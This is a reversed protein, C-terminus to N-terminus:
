VPNVDAFIGVDRNNKDNMFERILGSILERIVPSNRCKIILRRRYVGNLKPIKPPLPGLITLKQEPCEAKSKEILRETFASASAIVSDEKESSFGITVLDCFPPYALARRLMIETNYFSIYNQEAALEITTNDPTVTQIVARGHKSGRGARGVVQTILDFTREASRFDDNYLEKDASIVGVLTVDPFDLGKAVMQTGILIDYEGDAFSNLATEHSNRATTTDADMRLVRASPFRSHLEAEIKQTGSGSYRMNEGSCVKCKETYPESYGCYHCMLRNNAAHYTLSISCHPCTMVNKCDPCSVFTNFGRRNVLLISQEGLSLNNEIEGALEDSISFFSDTKHKASVDVTHVQPLVAKGYRETLETYIYQGAKAKAFTEVSPTASAFVTLAKNYAGRFRAVDKANYRPTSESKYTHEQEEDVIILGINELPAFIASRTGVAIVADGNKLRCWEDYREGMSLGSHLIATKKGYRSSFLSFTQPTLSIEPILVIVTKGDELVRDILELYVSTKGSGTIGYLLATNGKGEKCADWLKECARSQMASLVPKVYAEDKRAAEPTRFVRRRSLSVVGKQILAKTVSDGVGTYYSVDKFGVGPNASIYEVVASQKPTLSVDPNEPSFDASIHLEGSTLEGVSSVSEAKEELLGKATMKKLTLRDTIGCKKSILSERVFGKKSGIFSLLMMEEASLKEPIDHSKLAYLKETKLCMGGPLVAKAAEFATCFTHSQLWSALLILEPSLLPKSDTVSDISKLSSLEEDSADSVSFIFGQRLASGRGFPVMVRAGPVAFSILEDPISYSFLKDFSYSCAEVGVLAIKSSPM